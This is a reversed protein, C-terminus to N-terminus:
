PQICFAGVCPRNTLVGSAASRIVLCSVAPASKNTFPTNLVLMTRVLGHSAPGKKLDLTQQLKIKVSM